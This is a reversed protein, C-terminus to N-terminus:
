SWLIHTYTTASSLFLIVQLVTTGDLSLMVMHHSRISAVLLALNPTNRLGAHRQAGHALGRNNVPLMGWFSAKASKNPPPNGGAAELVLTPPMIAGTSSGLGVCSM